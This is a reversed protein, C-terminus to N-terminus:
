SIRAPRSFMAIQIRQRFRRRCSRRAWWDVVWDAFGYRLRWLSGVTALPIIGHCNLLDHSAHIILLQLVISIFATQRRFRFPLAPNRRRPSACSHLPDHCLKHLIPYTAFAIAPLDLLTQARVRCCQLPPKPPRYLFIHSTGNPMPVLRLVHAGNCLRRDCPRDNCLNHKKWM